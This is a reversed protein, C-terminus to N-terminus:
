SAAKMDADCKSCIGRGPLAEHKQCIGCPAEVLLQAETPTPDDGHRESGELQELQELQAQQAETPTTLSTLSDGRLANELQARVTPDPLEWYTVRPYGSSVLSLPIRRRASMVEAATV